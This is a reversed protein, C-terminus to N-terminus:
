HIKGEPLRTPTIVGSKRVAPRITTIRGGTTWQRNNAEQKRRREDLELQRQRQYEEATLENM